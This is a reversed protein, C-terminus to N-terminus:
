CLKFSEAKPSPVSEILRLIRKTDLVDQKYYKGDRSKLKLQGVKESM